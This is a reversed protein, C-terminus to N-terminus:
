ISPVRPCKQSLTVYPRINPLTAGRMPPRQHTACRESNKTNNGKRKLLTRRPHQPSVKPRAIRINNTAEIRAHRSSCRALSAASFAVVSHSAL